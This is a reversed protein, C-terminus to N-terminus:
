KRLLREEFAQIRVGLKANKEENRRGMIERINKEEKMQLQRVEEIKDEYMIIRGELEKNQAKMKAM